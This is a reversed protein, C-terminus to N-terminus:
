ARVEALADVDADVVTPEGVTGHILFEVNGMAGTIPSTCMGVVGVGSHDLAEIVSRVAEARHARDTVVGGRPVRDRGVEFQPKVLLVWDTGEAGAAALQVAVTRLSIFSVDGVVVDFPAGLLALDASRINTREAVRVRGDNRLRWDLQGYGVDVAVVSEAGRQLLCDTFGGTSAGVDVARRGAVDVDFEDLAHDLKLGGRSVFRRDEAAVHVDDTPAVLTNAKPAVVGGVRVNGAAIARQAATRSEAM